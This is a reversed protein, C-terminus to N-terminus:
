LLLKRNILVRKLGRQGKWPSVNKVSPKLIRDPERRPTLLMKVIKEGGGAAEQM